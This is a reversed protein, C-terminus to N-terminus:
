ALARQIPVDRRTIRSTIRDGDAPGANVFQRAVQRDREVLVADLYESGVNRNIEGPKSHVSLTFSSKADCATLGAKRDAVASNSPELSIANETGIGTNAVRPNNFVHAQRSVISACEKAIKGAYHVASDSPIL